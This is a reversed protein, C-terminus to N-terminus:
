RIEGGRWNVFGGVLWVGVWLGSFACVFFFPDSGFYVM